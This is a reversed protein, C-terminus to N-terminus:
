IFYYVIIQFILVKYQLDKTNKWWYHTPDVLEEETITRIGVQAYEPFESEWYNYIEKIRNRHRRKTIEEVTHKETEHIEAAHQDGIHMSAGLVDGSFDADRQHPFIRGARSANRAM